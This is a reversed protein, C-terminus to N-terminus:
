FDEMLRDEIRPWNEDILGLNSPTSEAAGGDPVADAMAARAPM